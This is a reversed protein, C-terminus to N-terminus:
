ISKLYDELSNRDELVRLLQNGASVVWAQNVTSWVASVSNVTQGNIIIQKIQEPTM